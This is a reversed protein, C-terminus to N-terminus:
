CPSSPSRDPADASAAAASTSPPWTATSTELHPLGARSFVQLKQGRALTTLADIASIGTLVPEAPPERHM